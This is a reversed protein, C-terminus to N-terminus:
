AYITAELASQLHQMLWMVAAFLTVAQLSLWALALAPLSLGTGRQMVRTGALYDQLARKDPPVAALAHGLNLSLWSLTGAVHRSVSRLMNLRQGQLDTVVLGLARKGPTAQWRSCEFATWYLAAAAVFAILGPKLADVTAAEIGAIAHRLDADHLWAQALVLPHEASRLGAIVLEALRTAVADFAAAIRQMAARWYPWAILLIPVGVIAADLSWAAYRRWFGAPIM